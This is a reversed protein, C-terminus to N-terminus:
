AGKLPGDDKARDPLLALILLGVLSLLGLFGYSAPYGKADAYRRCGVVFFVIGAILSVIRGVAVLAALGADGPSWAPAAQSLAILALGTWIDEGAKHRQGAKM